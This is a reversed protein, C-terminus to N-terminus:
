GGHGTKHSNPFADYGGNPDLPPAAVRGRLGEVSLGEFLVDFLHRIL